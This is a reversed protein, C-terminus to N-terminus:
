PVPTNAPVSWMGLLESMASKQADQFTAACASDPPLDVALGLGQRIMELNVFKDGVMVYYLLRGRDDKPSVDPILTIERGYVLQQNYVKAANVFAPQDPASVGIYRVVYVLGDILARITNGDLVEVVHGTKRPNGPICALGVPGAQTPSAAPGLTALAELTPSPQDETPLTPTDTLVVAITPRPTATYPSPTVTRPTLFSNVDFTPTAKAPLIGTFVDMFSGGGLMTFAVIVVGVVGIALALSVLVILKNIIDKKWFEILSKM